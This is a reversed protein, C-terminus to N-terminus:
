KAFHHPVQALAAHRDRRAECGRGFGIPVKHVGIVKSFLDAVRELFERVQRRNYGNVTRSFEMHQIDLPSLKM